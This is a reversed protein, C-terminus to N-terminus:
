IIFKINVGYVGQKFNVDYCYIFLKDKFWLFNGILSVELYDFVLGVIYGQSVIIVWVCNKNFYYDDLYNFSILYGVNNNIKGGCM